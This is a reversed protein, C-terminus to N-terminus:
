LRGELDYEVAGTVEATVIDHLKVGDGSLFFVGDVDPADFETRGIWNGEGADEEVLVRVKSGIKESLRSGSIVRQTEMLREFREQAIHEPISGSMTSAKTGEEPSYAFAGVRDLRMDSLFTM